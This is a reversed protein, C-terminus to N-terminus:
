TQRTLVADFRYHAAYFDAPMHTITVRWGTQRALEEWEAVSRWVGIQSAANSMDAPREGANAYFRDARDKDPLNGILVREVNVFRESLTALTAMADDASFYSFSGYCLVKNFRRPDAEERVYSAADKLVFRYHPPREFHKKAVEILYPSFDVGLLSACDGYLHSSLYGNGCALDLCVDGARLALHARIAEVILRIQEPAVPKGHVTRRVQGWFDDAPLTRPYEKYDHKPYDM